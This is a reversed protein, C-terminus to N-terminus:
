STRCGDSLIHHDSPWIQKELFPDYHETSKFIAHESREVNGNQQPKAKRKEEVQENVQLNSSTKKSIRKESTRSM